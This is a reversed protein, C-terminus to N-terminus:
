DLGNFWRWTVKLGGNSWTIFSTIECMIQFYSYNPMGFSEINFISLGFLFSVHFINLIIKYYVHFVLM